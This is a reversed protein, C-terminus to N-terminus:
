SSAQLGSVTAVSELHLQTCNIFYTMTNRSIHFM